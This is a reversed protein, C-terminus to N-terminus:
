KDGWLFGRDRGAIRRLTYIDSTNLDAIHNPWKQWDDWVASIIKATIGNSLSSALFLALETGLEISIGGNEKQTVAQDFFSKVM